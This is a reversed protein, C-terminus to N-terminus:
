IKRLKYSSIVNLEMVYRSMDKLARKFRPDTEKGIFEVFFKYEWEKKHPRSIIRTLNISNKKFSKLADCL